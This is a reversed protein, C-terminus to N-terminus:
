PVEGCERPLSLADATAEQLLGVAGAVARLAKRRSSFKMVGQHHVEVVYDNGIKVIAYCKM